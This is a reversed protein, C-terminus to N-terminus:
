GTVVFCCDMLVNIELLNGASLPFVVPDTHPRIYNFLMPGVQTDTMTLATLVQAMLKDGLAYDHSRVIVQFQTQYFGPLEYNIRSGSLPSRLLIASEAESPMMNLFLSVGQEGLTAAQLRVILPMLNM